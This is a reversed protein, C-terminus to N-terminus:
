RKKLIKSISEPISLTNQPNFELETLHRDEYQRGENINFFENKPHLKTYVALNELYETPPFPDFLLINLTKGVSLIKEINSYMKVSLSSCGVYSKDVNHSEIFYMPMIDSLDQHWM